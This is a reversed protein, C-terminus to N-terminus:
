AGAPQLQTPLCHNNLATASLGPFQTSCWALVADASTFGDAIGFTMWYAGGTSAVRAGQLTRSDFLVVQAGTIKSTLQLHEAYIDMAMFTHSGSATAQLPDVIGVYKSALQAVWQGQPKVARHAAADAAELALLAERETTVSSYSPGIMTVPAATTVQPAVSSVNTPAQSARSTSQSAMAEIASPESGRWSGPGFTVFWGFFLIVVLASSIGAFLPRRDRGTGDPM